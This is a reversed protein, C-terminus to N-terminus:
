KFTDVLSRVQLKKKVQAATLKKKPELTLKVSKGPRLHIFNDSLQAEAGDLELWAWLAVAKTKLTVDFGGKKREKVETSIKPKLSLELQKPRAFTVMNTSKPHGKVSLELWVILNRDTQQERLKALKLTHAKRNGNVPTRVNKTGKELTKGEADTIEWSLKGTETKLLDSTVHIEVTGKEADELGSVLVPAFFNKAM